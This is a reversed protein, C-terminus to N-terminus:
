SPFIQLHIFIKFIHFFFFIGPLRFIFKLAVIHKRKKVNRYIWLLILDVNQIIKTHNSKLM